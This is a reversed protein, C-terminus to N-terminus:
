IDRAISQIEPPWKMDEWDGILRVEPELIISFQEYVENRCLSILDYVDQAKAGGLNVIFNAHKASIQAGGIMRGKLGAQEILRGAYDGKPNTFVSGCSPQQLPQTDKRRQLHHAILEVEDQIRPDDLPIVEFLITTM